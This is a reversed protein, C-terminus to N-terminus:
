QSVLNSRGPFRSQAFLATRDAVRIHQVLQPPLPRLQLDDLLQELAALEVPPDDDQAHAPIKTELQTQSVQHLHDGLAAQRHRM